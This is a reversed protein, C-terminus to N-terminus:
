RETLNPGFCRRGHRLCYQGSEVQSIREETLLGLIWSDTDNEYSLETLRGFNEPGSVYDIRQGPNGYDDYGEYWTGFLYPGDLDDGVGTDRVTMQELLVPVSTVNEHFGIGHWYNENSIVRRGWHYASRELVIGNLSSVEKYRLLGISSPPIYEFRLEDDDVRYTRYYTGYHYYTEQHLPSTVRTVDLRLHTGSEATYPHSFPEFEFLWEGNEVANGSVTKTHIATTLRPSQYYFRVYQYTYDITAGHPYRVQRLSHSGLRDLIVGLDPDPESELERQNYAYEWRLGDPRVVASLQRYRLEDRDPIPDYEYEWRQGNAEIAALFIGEPVPNGDEDLMYDYHYTVVPETTEDREPGSEESRYIASIYKQGSASTEYDIEIWNGHVDEIRSTMWSSAGWLVNHEDMRYRTGDPSTVVMGPQGAVCEARWNSRSILTGDGAMRNLVLLERGGDPFEVSPNDASNASYSTQLCIKAAHERPVVIRGFHMTWGFGYITPKPYENTQLSTYVRNVAIDMGGNGPIFMDTYKLQLTGSFPDIHENFSQNISGSFPNIGPESYYDRIEEASASVSVILVAFFVSLRHGFRAFSPM